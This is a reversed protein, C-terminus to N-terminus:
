AAERTEEDDYNDDNSADGRTQFPKKKDSKMGIMGMIVGGGTQFPLLDLFPASELFDAGTLV